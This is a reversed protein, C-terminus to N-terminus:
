QRGSVRITTALVFIVLCSTRLEVVFPAFIVNGASAGAAAPTTRGRQWDDGFTSEQLAAIFDSDGSQSQSGRTEM